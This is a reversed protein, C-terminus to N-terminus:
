KLFRKKTALFGLIFLSVTLIVGNVVVSTLEGALLSYVTAILLGGCFSALLM